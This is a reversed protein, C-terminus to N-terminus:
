SKNVTLNRQDCDPSTLKGKYVDFAERSLFVIHGRDPVGSRFVICWNPDLKLISTLPSEWRWLITKPQNLELYEHWRETGNMASSFKAWLEANILNTRGDISVKEAVEGRQDARRYLLYGGNGFTNLLPGPLSNQEIFDVAAKPTIVEDLPKQWLANAWLISLCLVLFTVGRKPLWEYLRRLREFGESLEDRPLEKEAIQAFYRASLAAAVILAFPIFKVVAFAGVLFIGLLFLQARSFLKPRNHFFVAVLACLIVLFGTAYQHLTAPQFEIISAHSFPHTTTEVFTIWEGGLYPTLLTGLLAYLLSMAALPGKGPAFNWLAAALVGLAASLHTNAWLAMVVMLLLREKMGLGHREIRACVGLLCAFYIWVLVQPRLTFHSFCGVAALLGLLTGLFADRSITIFIASLTGTLLLAFLMKLVLLGHIGFYRDVGAFLIETTWSYARWVTGSGFVTWLDVSPLQHHALIWRGIVIHWWLDPDVIPKTIYLGAALVIFFWCLRNM